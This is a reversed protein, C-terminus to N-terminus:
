FILGAVVRRGELLVINYTRCAAATSMIEIGLHQEAFYKLLSLEPLQHQKGTGIIIVEPKFNLLQQCHAETLDALHSIPWPNINGDPTILISQNYILGGITIGDANYSSIYSGEALDETLQM